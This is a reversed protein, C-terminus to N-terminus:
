EDSAPPPAKRNTRMSPATSRMVVGADVQVVEGTTPEETRNDDLSTLSSAVSVNDNAGSNGGRRSRTVAKGPTKGGRRSAAETKADASAAPAEAAMASEVVLPGLSGLPTPEGRIDAAQTAAQLTAAELLKKQERALVHRLLAATVTPPSPGAFAGAQVALMLKSLQRGSFGQADVCVADLTLDTVDAAITLAARRRATCFGGSSGSARPTGLKGGLPFARSAGSRPAALATVSDYFAARGIAIRAARDPAGFFVAEDVRDSVASDIDGPANTALVLMLRSSPAGTAHLLASLVNRADESARAGRARSGACAEAEDIFLLLGRPARAAWAFLNNLETVARAGLPAVDGGAVIAWDLGSALALREAAMTKGTGPPGHFLAHRLPAGRSAAARAGDALTRLAAAAAADVHVDSFATATPVARPGSSFCFCCGGRRRSTARILAPTGLWDAVRSRVIALAETAARLAVFAVVLASLAAVAYREAFIRAGDSFTALALAAVALAKDKEAM